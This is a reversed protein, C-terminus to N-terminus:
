FKLTIGAEAMPFKAYNIGLNFRLVKGLKVGGGLGIFVPFANKNSFEINTGGEEPDQAYDVNMNGLQYGFRGYYFFHRFDQGGDLSILHNTVYVRRGLKISQFSYGGNLYFNNLNFYHGVDHRLAIGILQFKGFDGKFDYALFRLNIESHLVGGLTIQPLAFPVYAVGLGAPFTYSLGNTDTLVTIEPRGLITPVTTTQEPSFPEETTGSFNKLNDTVLGASGVLSFKFYFSSDIRSDTILGTNFIGTLVDSVPQVYGNKNKGLYNDLFDDINQAFIFHSCLTLLFLFYTKNKM